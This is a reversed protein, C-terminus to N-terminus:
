NYLLGVRYDFSCRPEADEPNPGPSFATHFVPMRGREQDRTFHCQKFVLVEDVTMNPYYYYTHEPNERLSLFTQGFAMQGLLTTSVVDAEDVSSPEVFCLQPQMDIPHQMPLVPRWFNIQMYGKTSDDELYRRLHESFGSGRNTEAVTSLSEIPYDAHVGAAYVNYAGPGRRVGKGPFFMQTVNPVLQKIHLALEESHFLKVPTEATIDAEVGDPTTPLNDMDLCSALWDDATMSTKSDLIVFGFKNFFDLKSLGEQAEKERADLVDFKMEMLKVSFSSMVRGSFLFKIFEIPSKKLWWGIDMEVKDPASRPYYGPVTAGQISSM